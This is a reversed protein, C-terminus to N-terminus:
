KKLNLDKPTEEAVTKSIAHTKSVADFLFILGIFLFFKSLDFSLSLIILVVGITFMTNSHETNHTDTTDKFIDKYLEIVKSDILKDNQFLSVTITSASFSQKSEIRFSHVSNNIPLDFSHVRKGLSLKKSLVSGNVTVSEIGLWNVDYSIIQEEINFTANM